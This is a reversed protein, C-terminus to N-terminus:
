KLMGKMYLAKLLSKESQGMNPFEREYKAMEEDPMIRPDEGDDRYEYDGEWADIIRRMNSSEKIQDPAQQKIIDFVREKSVGLRDACEQAYQGATMEDDVQWEFDGLHESIDDDTVEDEDLYSNWDEGYKAVMDKEAHLIADDNAYGMDEYKKILESKESYLDNGNKDDAVKQAIQEESMNEWGDPLEGYKEKMQRGYEEDDAKWKAKEEETPLQVDELDDNEDDSKEKKPNASQKGKDPNSQGTKNFFADVEKDVTDQDKEGIGELIKKGEEDSSLIAYVKKSVWGMTIKEKEYAGIIVYFFLSPIGLRSKTKAKPRSTPSTSQIEM